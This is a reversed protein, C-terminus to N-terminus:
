VLMWERRFLLTSIQGRHHTQHNFFHLLINKFPKRNLTGETTTYSLFSELDASTIESVFQKIIQDLKGRRELWGPLDSVLIQNLAGPKLWDSVIRLSPFQSPHQAMRQLWITDAVILHNLTELISGFFAGRDQVLEEADLKQAVRYFRSNM